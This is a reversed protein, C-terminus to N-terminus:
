NAGQWTVHVATRHGPESFVDIVARHRDVISKVVALGLGTGGEDARTTFFPEFLRRRTEEDMGPGDDLIVLTAGAAEPVIEVCVASGPPSAQLANLTLNLAVQQIEDPDARVVLPGPPIRWTLQVGRRRAESELLWVVKRVPEGLDVPGIRAPRRRSADQFRDIIRAIRDVQDVIHRAHRRVEPDVDRMQALMSARGVLVQLPSGVEHAVGAALQGVAILKDADRLSRQLVERQEAEAAQVDRAAVLRRQLDLLVDGLIRLEDNLPAGLDLPADLDDALEETARALRSLPGTIERRLLVLMVLTTLMAFIIVFIGILQTTSRLDAELGELPRVVVLTGIREGADTRLPVGALLHMPADQVDYMRLVEEQHEAQLRVDHVLQSHVDSGFSAHRVIGENTFVLVDVQGAILEMRYLLEAIDPDQRDRLANEISVQLSRTLLRMEQFADSVLQQHELRILLGGAVVSTLLVTGATVAILRTTLRM